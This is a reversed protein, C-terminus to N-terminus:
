ILACLASQIPITKPYYHSSWHYCSSFNRLNYSHVKSSLVFHLSFPYQRLIIARAGLSLVVIFRMSQILSGRILACLVSQVPITEPYYCSSGFLAGLNLECAMEKLHHLPLKPYPTLNLKCNGRRPPSGAVKNADGLAKAQTFLSISSALWRGM